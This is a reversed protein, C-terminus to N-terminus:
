YRAHAGKSISDHIKATIRTQLDRPICLKNNGNCDEFYILGNDSYHYQPFSPNSWKLEKQLNSLLSSFYPDKTYGETWNLLEENEIGILISYSSSSVYPVKIDLDEESDLTIPDITTQFNEARELSTVYDRAVKM